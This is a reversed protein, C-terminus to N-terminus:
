NFLLCALHLLHAFTHLLTGCSFCTFLDSSLDFKCLNILDLMLFNLLSFEVLLRAAVQSGRDEELTLLLLDVTQSLFCAQHLSHTLLLAVGALDEELSV